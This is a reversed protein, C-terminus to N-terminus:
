IIGQIEHSLVSIVSSTSRRGIASSGKIYVLQFYASM